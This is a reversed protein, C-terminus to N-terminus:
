EPMASSHHSTILWDEGDWAYTHRYRGSVSEGTEAFTFTYLGADVVKNCGIHVWRKDIEGSPGDVLFDDFYDVREEFTMRPTNSVTPLLISDDAYNAAVTESSGTQLSDNWRDFLSAVEDESIQQCTTEAALAQSSAVMLGASLLIVTCHTHKSIM